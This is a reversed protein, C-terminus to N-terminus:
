IQQYLTALMAPFPSHQFSVFRMSQFTHLAAGAMVEGKKEM